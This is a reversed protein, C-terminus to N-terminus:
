SGKRRLVQEMGEPLPRLTRVLALLDEAEGSAGRGRADDILREFLSATEWASPARGLLRTAFERAESPRGAACALDARYLLIAPHEPAAKEAAALAREALDLPGAEVLLRAAALRQSALAAPPTRREWEALCRLAEAVAAAADGPRGEDRRARALKLLTAFRLRVFDSVGERLRPPLAADALAYEQESRPLLEPRRDGVDSRLRALTYHVDWAEQSGAPPRTRVFFVPLAVALLVGLLLGVQRTVPSREPPAAEAEPPLRRLRGLLLLALAGLLFALAGFGYPRVSGEWGLLTDAFYGEALLPLVCEVLPNRFVEPADPCGVFAPAYLLSSLLALGGFLLRRGAVAPAALVALFPVAATLYRPGYCWGGHWGYFGANLLLAGAGCALCLLVERRWTRGRWLDRAGPVALLLFPSLFLLGRAPSFLISLLVRPSPLSVGLIGEESGRAFEETAQRSYSLSFPSGFCTANYYLLLGLPLAGGGAFALLAAGSRRSLRAVAYAAVPLAIVVALYDCLVGWGLLFGAAFGRPGGRGEGRAATVLIAAAGFCLAAATQHGSFLTAHILSLTGFSTALVLGAAEAPPAGLRLAAAFLVLALLANPLSTTAVRVLHLLLPDLDPAGRLPSGNRLFWWLPAALFPLGIAKSSYAHGSGSSLDITRPAYPDIAFTGREAISAALFARSRSNDYEIPRVVWASALLVAGFLAPRIGRM